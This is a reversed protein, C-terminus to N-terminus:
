SNKDYDIAISGWTNLHRKEEKAQLQDIEKTLKDPKKFIKEVIHWNWDVVAKESGQVKTDCGYDTIWTTYVGLSPCDDLTDSASAFLIKWISIAQVRLFQM